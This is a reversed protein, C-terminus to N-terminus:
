WRFSHQQQVWWRCHGTWWINTEQPHCITDVHTLKLLQGNCIGPDKDAIWWVMKLQYNRHLFPEPETHHRWPMVQVQKKHLNTVKLTRLQWHMKPSGVMVMHSTASEQLSIFSVFSDKWSPFTWLHKFHVRLKPSMQVPQRRGQRMWPLSLIHLFLSKEKRM